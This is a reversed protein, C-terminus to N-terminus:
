NQRTKLAPVALGMGLFVWFFRTYLIEHFLSFLGFGILLLITAYAMVQDHTEMKGSKRHLAIIMSFFVTAFALFGFPGMETFVWLPTNDIIATFERDEQKQQYAYVSGIGAGTIPNQTYLRFSDKIVQIRLSDGKYMGNETEPSINDSKLHEVGYHHLTRHNKLSNKIKQTNALPTILLGIIILPLLKSVLFRWNKILIYLILPLVILLISRSANMVCFLPLLLWLSHFAFNDIRQLQVRKLLLLSCISLVSLYLFAFANRNAMFGSLEHNEFAGLITFHALIDHHVLIRTITEFITVICLFLVFPRVFWHQIVEEKNSTVWAGLALYAMLVFWGVGKNILAWNSWEGQLRYGNLLALVIVTSLLIPAWYGFPKQWIPWSSRKFFLSTLILLGAIPLLLDASNIRLGLYDSSAFLTIQIQLFLALLLLGGRLVFNSLSVNPM